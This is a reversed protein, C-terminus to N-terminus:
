KQLLDTESAPRLAIETAPDVRLIRKIQNQISDEPLTVREFPERRAERIKSEPYEFREGLGNDSVWGRETRLDLDLVYHIQVSTEKGRAVDWTRLYGLKGGRTWIVQYNTLAMGVDDEGGPSTGAGRSRCGAAGLATALVLASALIAKV